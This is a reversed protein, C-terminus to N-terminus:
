GEQEEKKEENQKKANEVTPASNLDTKQNEPFVSQNVSDEIDQQGKKFEKVAEGMSKALEPLKKPGFILLVVALIVLLEGMGLRGFM